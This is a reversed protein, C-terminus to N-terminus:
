SGFVLFLILAGVLCWVLYASLLGSHAAQLRGSLFGVLSKGQEYVDFSKKEAQDYVGRLFPLERVGAYFDVGTVRAEAPLNEEGIYAEDERVSRPNGLLYIILGLVIGAIILLAAPGPSWFGPFTVEGAAPVIFLKLPVAYAFVGFVVCLVAPVMMPIWMSPGVEKVEGTAGALPRAPPRGLFVAHLLKMFSALTLASGFMAAALWLVWLKGGTKGLEILGQYVMWKSAFGNFPPVGSISLAAIVFVLFTIPMAKALGGLKKLEGTGTRYEVAGACFFLCSKYVANNVLHFIGGAIGVPIGTGIGLVMYGVQSVAHYGLLKKFDHQILAMMVAAMITVAGLAMLFLKMAGNLVFLHLSMRALLYIGLLKDLAAPLFATVPAPASEAAEPVWTHFPMVGAKAFAAAALCLYALVPLGGALLLPRTSIESIALSGTLRGVVAVGLIMLADTGGVIILTKKAAAAGADGGMGVLLYLTIGLFGWFVLLLVLNNAAVAGAAAGITMLVCAYYENLRPRGEMFRFSYLVTLFGFLGIAPLAFDSLGDQLFFAGAAREPFARAALVLAALSGALALTKLLGRARAPILRCLIGTAIPLVILWFLDSM